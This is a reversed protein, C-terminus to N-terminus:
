RGAGGQAVICFNIEWSIFIYNHFFPKTINPGGNTTGTYNVTFYIVPKTLESKLVTDIIFDLCV